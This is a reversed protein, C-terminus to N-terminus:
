KACQSQVQREEKVLAEIYPSALLADAEAEGMPLLPRRPLKSYGFRRHLIQKMGAIGVSAAVGDALAVVGQLRRAERRDGDDSSQCLEWLRVCIHPAFNPLGSIAGAAGVAVSPLLIDIFGDIVEFRQDSGTSRPHRSCFATDHAVATIRTIKGISACTLKAGVVNPASRVVDLISDSSLDIGASVSPFNYLIVPLRSAAAVDVFFQKLAENDNAKLAPAYYGPPIKSRLHPQNTDVRNHLRHVLLCNRVAMVFDAGADAADHALEITERTSPAGVGVIIPLKDQMGIEALASRATQILNRRENPDLHVAEGMSGAIVPITGASAIYRVHRRFAELDLDETKPDFFTPLPTYIGRPLASHRKYGM